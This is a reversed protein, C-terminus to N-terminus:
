NHWTDKKDLTNSAYVVVVVAVHTHTYTHAQVQGDNTMMTHLWNWNLRWETRILESFRATLQM